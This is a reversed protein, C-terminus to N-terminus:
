IRKAGTTRYIDGGSPKSPPSCPEIYLHAVPKGREILHIEMASVPKFRRDPKERRWAEARITLAVTAGLPHLNGDLKTDGTPQSIWVSAM